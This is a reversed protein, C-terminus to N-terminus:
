VAIFSIIVSFLSDVSYLIPGLSSFLRFPTSSVLSRPSTTNILCLLVFLKLTFVLVAHSKVSMYIIVISLVWPLM